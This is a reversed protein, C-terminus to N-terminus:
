RRRHLHLRQLEVKGTVHFYVANLGERLELVTLEREGSRRKMDGAFSVVAGEPQDNVAATISGLGPGAVGEVSVGYRGAEPVDVHFALFHPGFRDVGETAFSLVRVNEKGIAITEKKLTANNLSSAALPTNWGLEYTMREPATVRREAVPPLADPRAPPEMSYLYTVGTYDTPVNNKVPGHEITLKMSKRYPMVDNLFIRYAGTRALHKKYELCGSLPFLVRSYWRGPIDYWGGNFFDESGTGHIVLEGDITAQDDGEFFGTNGPQFGQAQLSVGAIQGQGQLDAFVFPQGQVTKPERRWLAYLRGEDPLRAEKAHEVEVTVDVPSARESLLEIRASKAYPMPMRLYGVGDKVGFLLAEAAPEGFSYGLLDSVPADIAPKPDGDWYARLVIDRGPGSFAAAPSLKLGAIRGGTKATFVAAARGQMLRHQSSTRQVPHKSLRPTDTGLAYNIQYFQLKPGRYLVKISKEFRIPVYSFYGGAGSGADPKLFPAQKGSFLDIFNVKLRPAAEGDIYFEVPDQTPTPTWIRTLVGPGENLEAIVLADGEKRLYSYKGSFGDDNGGSRDYSSFAGVKRWGRIRALDEPQGALTGALLLFAFWRTQM